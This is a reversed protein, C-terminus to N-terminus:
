TTTCAMRGAAGGGGVAGAAERLVLRAMVGRGAGPWGPSGIATNLARGSALRGICTVLVTGSSVGGGLGLGRRWCRSVGNGSAAGAGRTRVSVWTGCRFASGTGATSGVIV